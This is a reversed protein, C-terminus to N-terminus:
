WRYSLAVTWLRPRGVGAVNFPAQVEAASVFETNYLKNFVNSVHGTVSWSGGEVRLGANVLQYAPQRYHDTPDWYHQGVFTSDVRAGFV